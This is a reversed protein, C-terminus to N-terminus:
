NSELATIISFSSDLSESSDNSESILVAENWKSDFSSIKCVYDSSDLIDESRISPSEESTENQYAEVLRDGEQERNHREQVIVVSSDDISIIQNYSPPKEFLEAKIALFVESTQIAIDLKTWSSILKKHIEPDSGFTKFTSQLKEM